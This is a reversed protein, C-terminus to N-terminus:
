GFAGDFFVYFWLLPGYSVHVTYNLRIFCYLLKTHFFFGAFNLEVLFFFLLKFYNCSQLQGKHTLTPCTTIGSKIIKSLKKILQKM